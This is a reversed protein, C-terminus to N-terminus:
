AHASRTIPRLTEDAPKRAGYGYTTRPRGRLRDEAWSSLLWSPWERWDGGYRDGDKRLKLITRWVHRELDDPHTTEDAFLHFSRGDSATGQVETASGCEVGRPCPIPTDPLFQVTWLVGHHDIGQRQRHYATKTM